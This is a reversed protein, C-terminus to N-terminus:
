KLGGQTIGEIVFRQGVFFLIAVPLIGIVAAAMLMNIFVSGETQFSVLGLQVVRLSSDSTVFLPWLLANWSWIFTILFVTVAAARVLPLGISWFARIESSGDVYASDFLDDPIGLFEQRFLFVAFAGAAWPVILATYTNYWGLDNILVFNAIFTAEFPIMFSALILMLVVKRGRWRIRVLAYGALAGFLVNGSASLVAVLLSNLIWRAMMTEAFIDIYTTLSASDPLITPPVKLAEDLPKLSTTVMWYLPSLAFICLIVLVVHALWRNQGARGAAIM